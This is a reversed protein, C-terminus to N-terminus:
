KLLAKLQRRIRREDEPELGKFPLTELHYKIEEITEEDTLDRNLDEARAVFRSHLDTNLAREFLPKKPM